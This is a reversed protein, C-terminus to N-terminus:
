YDIDSIKVKVVSKADNEIYTAKFKWRALADLKNLYATATGLVNNNIDYLTYEIYINEVEEDTNNALYGEVYYIENEEDYYNKIDPEITLNGNEIIITGDANELIEPYDFSDIFFITGIFIIMPLLTYIVAIIIAIILGKNNKKKM